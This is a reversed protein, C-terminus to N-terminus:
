PPSLLVPLLLSLSPPSPSPAPALSLAPPNHSVLATPAFEDGEGDLCAACRVRVRQRDRESTKRCAARVAAAQRPSVFRRLPATPLRRLPLPLASPQPLPLPLILPRNVSPVVAVGLSHLAASTQVHPCPHGHQAPTKLSGSPAARRDCAVPIARPPTRASSREHRSARLKNPRRARSGGPPMKPTRPKPLPPPTPPATPPFTPVTEPPLGEFAPPNLPPPATRTIPQM